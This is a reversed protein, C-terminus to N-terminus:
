AGHECRAFACRGDALLDESENLKIPGMAVADALAVFKDACDHHFAYHTGTARYLVITGDLNLGLSKMIGGLTNVKSVM